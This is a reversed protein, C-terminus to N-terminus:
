QVRGRTIDTHARFAAGAEALMVRPKAYLKMSPGGDVHPNPALMDPDGLLRAVLPRTWGRRILEAVSYSETRNPDRSM